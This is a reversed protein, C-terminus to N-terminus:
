EGKFIAERKELFAAVGEANDKTQGAQNQLQAELELQQEYSNSWTSWYAKRMLALSRPGNALKRAVELAGAMLQDNDEFVRNVIGWECAKEAYLREQRKYM